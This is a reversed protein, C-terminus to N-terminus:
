WRVQDLLKNSLSIIEAEDLKGYTDVRLSDFPFPLFNTDFEESWALFNQFEGAKNRDLRPIAAVKPLKYISSERNPKKIFPTKSVDIHPMYVSNANSQRYLPYIKISKNNSLKIEHIKLSNVETYIFLPFTLIYSRGKQYINM